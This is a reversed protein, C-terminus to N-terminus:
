TVRKVQKTLDSWIVDSVVYKLLFYLLVKFWATSTNLSRIRRAHTHIHVGGPIDGLARGWRGVLTITGLQNVLWFATNGFVFFCCPWQIELWLLLEHQQLTVYHQRLMIQKLDCNLTPRELCQGGVSLWYPFHGCRTRTWRRSLCISTLLAMVHTGRAAM